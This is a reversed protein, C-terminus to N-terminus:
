LLASSQASNQTTGAGGKGLVCFAGAAMCDAPLYSLLARDAVTLAPSLGSFSGAVPHLWYSTHPDTLSMSGLATQAQPYLQDLTPSHAWLVRCTGRATSGLRASLALTDGPCVRGLVGPARVMKRPCCSSRCVSVCFRCAEAEPVLARLSGRGTSSLLVPNHAKCRGAVQTLWPALRGGRQSM